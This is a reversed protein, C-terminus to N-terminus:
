KRRSPEMLEQLSMIRSHMLTQRYHKRGTIMKM